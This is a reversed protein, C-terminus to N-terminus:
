RHFRKLAKLRACHVGEKVLYLRQQPRVQGCIVGIIKPLCPQTQPELLDIVFLSSDGCREDSWEEYKISVRRPQDSCENVGLFIRDDSSKGDHRCQIEM